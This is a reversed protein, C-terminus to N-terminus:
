RGKEPSCYGNRLAQVLDDKSRIPVDFRTVVQGLEALSHADSGGTQTVSYSEVWRRARDNEAESNRGNWTEVVRCLGDRVVYEQVGMGPRFPHAAVAVGGREHVLTLLEPATFGRSIGAFPGFVLFDGDPTTYELGVIVCLGDSQIGETVHQAAEMRQHDTICVGDLDRGRSHALIEELRLESCPSITSHVHLDFRM